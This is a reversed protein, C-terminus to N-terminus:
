SSDTDLYLKIFVSVTCFISDFDTKCMKGNRIFSALKLKNVSIFYCM